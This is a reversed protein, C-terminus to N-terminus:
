HPEKRPLSSEKWSGGSSVRADGDQGSVGSVGSDRGAEGMYKIRM